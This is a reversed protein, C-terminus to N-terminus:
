ASGQTWPDGSRLVIGKVYKPFKWSGFPGYFDLTRASGTEILCTPWKPNRWTNRVLLPHKLFSMFSLQPLTMGKMPDYLRIPYVFHFHGEMNRTFYVPDIQKHM